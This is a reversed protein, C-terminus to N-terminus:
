AIVAVMQIATRWAQLKEGKMYMCININLFVFHMILNFKVWLSLAIRPVSLPPGGGAGEEEWDTACGDNRGLPQSTCWALQQM